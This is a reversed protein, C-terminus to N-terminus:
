VSVGGAVSRAQRACWRRNLDRPHATLTCAAPSARADDRDRPHVSNGARAEQASEVLVILHAPDHQEVPMRRRQREAFADADDDIQGRREGVGGDRFDERALAHLGHHVRREVGGRDVGELRRVLDLHDARARQEVRHCVVDAVAPRDLADDDEAGRHAVPGHGVIRM